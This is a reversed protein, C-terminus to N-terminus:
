AKVTILYTHVRSVINYILELFIYPFDVCKVWVLFWIILTLFLLPSFTFLIQGTNLIVTANHNEYSITKQRQVYIITKQMQTAGICGFIMDPPPIWKANHFLLKSWPLDSDVEM